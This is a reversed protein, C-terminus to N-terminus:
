PISMPLLRQGNRHNATQLICWGFLLLAPIYLPTRILYSERSDAPSRIKYVILLCIALYVSLFSITYGYCHGGGFALTSFVMAFMLLGFAARELDSRDLARM